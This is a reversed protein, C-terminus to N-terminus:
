LPGTHRVKWIQFRYSLCVFLEEWTAAAYMSKFIEILKAIEEQIITPYAERSLRWGSKPSSKSANQYKSLKQNSQRM